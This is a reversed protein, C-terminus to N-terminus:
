QNINVPKTTRKRSLNNDRTHKIYDLKDETDVLLVKRERRQEQHHSLIPYEANKSKTNSTDKLIDALLWNGLLNLQWSPINEGTAVYYQENLEEIKAKKEELPLDYTILDYIISKIDEM